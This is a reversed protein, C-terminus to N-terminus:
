KAKYTFSNKTLGAAKLKKVVANYKTKSTSYVYVKATKPVGKFAKSGVSTLNGKVVIKKLSKNGYFAATGITTVNNGITLSTLKANKKVRTTIATVKYSKGTKKSKITDPVTLTTASGAKMLKAYKKSVSTLSYTKSTTGSGTTVKDGTADKKVTVSPAPSPKSISPKYSEDYYEDDEDPDTVNTDGGTNGKYIPDYGFVSFLTTTYKITAPQGNKEIGTLTVTCKDGIDFSKWRYDSGEDADFLPAFYVTGPGGLKKSTYYAVANSSNTGSTANLVKKGYRSHEFVVKLNSPNSVTYDSGLSVSWTFNCMGNGEKIQGGREQMLEVPFNVGPYAIYQENVISSKNYGDLWKYSEAGASNVLGIGVEEMEMFNTIRHGIKSFGDMLFGQCIAPTSKYYNKSSSVTLNSKSCAKKGIEWQEDTLGSPRTTPNHIEFHGSKYALHSLAAAHMAKNSLDSNLKLEPLGVCYRAFNCYNIYQQESKASLKGIVGHEPDPKVSYTAADWNIKNDTFPHAKVYAKIEAQSPCSKVAIGNKVTVGSSTNGTNGSNDASETPKTVEPAGQIFTTKDARVFEKAGDEYIICYTKGNHSGTVGPDESVNVMCNNENQVAYGKVPSKTYTGDVAGDVKGTGANSSSTTEKTSDTSSETTTGEVWVQQGDENVEYHGTETQTTPNYTDLDDVWVRQGNENIVYGGEGAFATATSAMMSVALGLAILTRKKM